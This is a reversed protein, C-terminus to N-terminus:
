RHAELLQGAFMLLDTALSLAFASEERKPIDTHYHAEPSTWNWAAFLLSSLMTPAEKEDSWELKLRNEIEKTWGEFSQGPKQPMQWVDGVVTAIGQVVNRCDRIAQEYQGQRHHSTAQELYRLCTAWETTTALLGPQPLEVLRRKGAGLQELVFLWREREIRLPMDGQMSVRYVDSRKEVFDGSPEGSLALSTYRAQVRPNPLVALGALQLKLVVVDGRRQEEIAEIHQPTLPVAVGNYPTAVQAPVRIGRSNAPDNAASLWGELSLLTAGQDALTSPYWEVSCPLWLSSGFASSAGSVLAPDILIVCGMSNSTTGRQDWVQLNFSTTPM